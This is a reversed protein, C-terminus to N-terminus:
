ARELVNLLRELTATDFDAGVGIRHGSWLVVELAWPGLTRRPPAEGDLSVAILRGEPKATEKGLQQRKLQRRLSKPDWNHNRCFEAKSVGSAKFERLLRGIEAGSRRSRRQVRNKNM